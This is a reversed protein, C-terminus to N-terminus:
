FHTNEYAYQCEYFKDNQKDLIAQMYEDENKYRPLFEQKKEKLWESRKHELPYIGKNSIEELDKKLKKEYRLYEIFIKIYYLGEHQMEEKFKQKFKYKKWTKYEQLNFHYLIDNNFKKYSWINRM